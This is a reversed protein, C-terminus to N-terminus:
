PWEKMIFGGMRPQIDVVLWISNPVIVDGSANFSINYVCQNPLVLNGAIPEPLQSFTILNLLYTYTKVSCRLESVPTGGFTCLSM